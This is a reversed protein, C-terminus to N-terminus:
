LVGRARGAGYEPTPLDGTDRLKLATHRQIYPQGPGTHTQGVPGISFGAYLHFSRLGHLLPKVRCGEFRRRETEKAVGPSVDQSPRSNVVPIKRQELLESDAFPGTELKTGFGEISEVM